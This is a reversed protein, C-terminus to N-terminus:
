IKILSFFLDRKEKKLLIKPGGWRFLFLVIFEFFFFFGLHTIDCSPISAYIAVLMGACCTESLLSSHCGVNGHGKLASARLCPIQPTDPQNGEGDYSISHLFTNCSKDM